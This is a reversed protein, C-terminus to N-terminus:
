KKMPALIAPFHHAALTLSLTDISAACPSTPTPSTTLSARAIERVNKEERERKTSHGNVTPLHDKM